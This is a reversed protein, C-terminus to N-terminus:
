TKLRNIAKNLNDIKQKIQSSNDATKELETVHSKAEMVNQQIGEIANNLSKALEQLRDNKRLNTRTTLDGEGLKKLDNMIHFTPGAIKHTYFIALIVVIILGILNVLILWPLLLQMTNHLATFHARYTANELNRNAIIYFLGSAVIALIFILTVAGALLGWQNGEKVFYKKRQNKM